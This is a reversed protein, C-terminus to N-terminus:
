GGLAKLVAGLAKGLPGLPKVVLRDLVIEAAEGGTQRLRQELEFLVDVPLGLGVEDPQYTSGVPYLAGSRSMEVHTGMLHRVPHRRAFEALRQVSAVYPRWQKVYVLGPYLTDGTLLWGTREDYVTLSEEQHGPTPILHLTRAGLDLTASGRPWDRLKFQGIVADLRPEVLTVGPRNRFQADGGTHDRHSHSHAVLMAPAPASGGRARILAQLTDHLPM